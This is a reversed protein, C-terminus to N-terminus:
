RQSHTDVCEEEIERCSVNILCDGVFDGVFGAGDDTLEPVEVGRVPVGAVVALVESELVFDLSLTAPRGLIPGGVEVFLVLMWVLLGDIPPATLGAVVLGEEICDRVGKAPGLNDVVVLGKGRVSFFTATGLM